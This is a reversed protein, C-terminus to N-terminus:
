NREMQARKGFIMRKLTYIIKTILLMTRNGIYYKGNKLFIQHKNVLRNMRKEVIEKANYRELIESKSLGEKHEYLERLIRIRRATEGLNIFHFYCYGLLSYTIINVVLGCLIDVSSVGLFEHWLSMEILLMGLLGAAFGIFVSKLLRIRKMCRFTFTQVFANVILGFIPTVVEMPVPHMEEDAGKPRM